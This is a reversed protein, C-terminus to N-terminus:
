LMGGQNVILFRKMINENIIWPKSDMMPLLM